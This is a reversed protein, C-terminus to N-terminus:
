HDSKGPIGLDGAHGVAALFDATVISVLRSGHTKTFTILLGYARLQPALRRLENTFKQTSKPWAKSNAVKKGVKQTFMSYMEAPSSECQFPTRSFHFLMEGLPTSELSTEIAGSRSEDYATLFTENEWGLGRGVAEGWRAFDAMRPMRSLKMSPLHRLGGVMVDLVGGLIASHKARFARWLHDEACRRDQTIPPLHLFVTRDVLDSKQVFDEIGNLIVPREAYLAARESNSYLARQALGGGCVIRCLSDSLWNPIATINDYALLWGNLATVMLDLTSAPEALLPCAQPDILLRLVRALTTKASGQEGHISLIPYPGVPRLAATLWAVVLPFADDTVNLFPRLLDLSGGRSPVPLPLLGPPRKFQVEPRDIVQWGGPCIKVAAGTSDGLDLFYTWNDDSSRAVRVCISPTGGDFRARAELLSVM